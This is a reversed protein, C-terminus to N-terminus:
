DLSGEKEKLFDREWQLAERKTKFGRKKSEKRKGDWTRYTYRAMWKGSKKDKYAPM